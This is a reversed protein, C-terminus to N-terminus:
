ALSVEQEASLINILAPIVQHVDGVICYDAHDFIPARPDSNIAVVLDAKEIGVVFHFAGSIGCCIAVKPSTVVGTQGIQREREIHGEDVPPRTAGIEGGLLQALEALMGFDGDVGRGGAVLVDVGTLDVQDGTSREILRTDIQEASLELNIPILTGTRNEDAQEISFVGPRVTAMQPRHNEMEILALIGGGFGSVECVLRGNEPNLDLDTCDANLGTRLRVALRGALDRGDPTAGLWFVSPKASMIAQYAAISYAEITFHELLPDDGLYVQDVGHAIAANALRTVQSGLLLGALDWGLEDCVQRGKAILELSVGALQGEDVELYVWISKTEQDVSYLSAVM